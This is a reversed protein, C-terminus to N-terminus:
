RYCRTMSSPTHGASSHTSPNDTSPQVFHHGTGTVGGNSGEQIGVEMEELVDEENRRNIIRPRKDLM